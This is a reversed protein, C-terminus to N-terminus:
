SDEQKRRRKAALLRETNSSAPTAAEPASAPPQPKAPAAATPATRRPAEVAPRRRVAEPAGALTGDVTEKRKLLAGLTETSEAKRGPHIWGRILAWDLQVRRVAVDLPILCALLILLWELVPQSSEKPVRKVTFLDKGTERGTLLRGGTKQAIQRLLIPDSRFRLYEPSYALAFGGLATESRGAGVGALTVQYRGKGWLPFRGQYRRPGVQSLSLSEARQRPGNVQAEIELM